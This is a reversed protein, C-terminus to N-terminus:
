FIEDTLSLVNKTSEKTMQPLYNLAIQTHLINSKFIGELDVGLKMLETYRGELIYPGYKKSFAEM